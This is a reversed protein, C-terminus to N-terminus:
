ILKKRENPFCEYFIIYIFLIIDFTLLVLYPVSESLEFVPELLVAIPANLKIFLVFPSLFVPTPEFAIYKLVVPVSLVATPEPQKHKLLVPVKFVATPELAKSPKVCPEVTPSL